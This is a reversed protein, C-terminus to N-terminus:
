RIFNISYIGMGAIIDLEHHDSSFLSGNLRVSLSLALCDAYSIRRIQSKLEAAEKWMKEDMDERVVLGASYLDEILQDAENRNEGRSLADKYVECMNIAHIFCDEQILASEVVDAGEEDRLYAILACADLVVNM